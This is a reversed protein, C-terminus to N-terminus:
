AAAAAAAAGLAEGADVMTGWTGEYSVRNKGCGRMTERGTGCEHAVGM